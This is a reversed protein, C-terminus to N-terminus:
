LHGGVKTASGAHEIRRYEALMAEWLSWAAAVSATLRKAAARDKRTTVSLARTEKSTLRKFMPSTKEFSPIEEGDGTVGYAHM